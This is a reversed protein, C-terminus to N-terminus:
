HWSFVTELILPYDDYTPRRPDAQCDGFLRCRLPGVNHDDGAAGFSNLFGNFRDSSFCLSLRNVDGVFLSHFAKERVNASKIVQNESCTVAQLQVLKSIRIELLGPASKFQAIPRREGRDFVSAWM